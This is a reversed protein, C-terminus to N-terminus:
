PGAKLVQPPFPLATQSPGPAFPMMQAGIKAIIPDCPVVLAPTQLRRGSVEETRYLRADDSTVVAILGELHAPRAEALASFLADVGRGVDGIRVGLAGTLERAVGLGVLDAFTFRAAKGPKAALYPVARRWHRLDGLSVDALTRAQEQTFQIARLPM